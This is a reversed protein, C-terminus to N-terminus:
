MVAMVGGERVRGWWGGPVVGPVVPGRAAAAGGTASLAEPDGRPRLLLRFGLEPHKRFRRHLM